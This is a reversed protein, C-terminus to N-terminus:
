KYEKEISKIPSAIIRIAYFFVTSFTQTSHVYMGDIKTSELCGSFHECKADEFSIAMIKPCFYLGLVLVILIHSLHM